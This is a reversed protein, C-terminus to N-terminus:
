MQCFDPPLTADGGEGRWEGPKAVMIYDGGDM